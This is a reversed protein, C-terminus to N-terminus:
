RLAPLGLIDAEEDLFDHGKHVGQQSRHLSFLPYFSPLDLLKRLTAGLKECRVCCKGDCSTSELMLFHFGKFGPDLVSPDRMKAVFVHVFIHSM